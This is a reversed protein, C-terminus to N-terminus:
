LKQQDLERQVTSSTADVPISLRCTTICTAIFCAVGEHWEDVLQIGGSALLPEDHEENTAESSSAIPAAEDLVEMFEGLRDIVASFGALTEFQLCRM